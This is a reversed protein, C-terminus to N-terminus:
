KRSKLLNISDVLESWASIHTKLLAQGKSTLSYYKRPPSNESEKWVYDVIGDRRLRSLLPYLTGEVTIMNAQALRNLIEASYIEGQSIIILVAYELVGKKMQTQITDKDAM